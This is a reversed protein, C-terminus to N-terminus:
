NVKCDATIRLQSRKNDAGLIGLSKGNCTVDVANGTTIVVRDQAVVTKTASDRLTETTVAKGDAQVSLWTARSVHIQLELAGKTAAAATGSTSSPSGNTAGPKAVPNTFTSGAGAPSTTAPTNAGAPTTTGPTMTSPTTTGPTSAGATPAQAGNQDTVPAGNQLTADASSPPVVAPTQVQAPAEVRPQHAQAVAEHKMKRYRIGAAVGATLLVLVAFTVWIKGSRGTKEGGSSAFESRRSVEAQAAMKAMVDAKSTAPQEGQAAVFDSVAQEEDLGLFKAYARVFGKNFIGGPLQDFHEDELAKLSRTGIKTAEAIEELTVGRLERERKLKDGFTGV